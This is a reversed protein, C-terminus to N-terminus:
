KGTVFHKDTVKHDSTIPWSLIYLFFHDPSFIVDVKSETCLSITVKTGKYGQLSLDRSSIGVFVTTHLFM